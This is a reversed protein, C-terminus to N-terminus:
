KLSKKDKEIDVFIIVKKTYKQINLFLNFVEYPDCICFKLNEGLRKSEVNLEM